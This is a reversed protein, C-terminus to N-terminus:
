MYIRARCPSAVRLLELVFLVKHHGNECKNESSEHFSSSSLTNFVQM